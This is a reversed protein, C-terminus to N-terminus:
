FWYSLSSLQFSFGNPRCRSMFKELRRMTANHQHMRASKLLQFKSQAWDQMFMWLRWYLFPMAHFSGPLVTTWWVKEEPFLPPACTPWAHQSCGHCFSKSKREKKRRGGTRTVEIRFLIHPVKQEECMGECNKAFASEAALWHRCSQAAM